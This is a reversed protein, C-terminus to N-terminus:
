GKGGAPKTALRMILPLRVRPMQTDATQFARFRHGFRTLGKTRYDMLSGNFGHPVGKNDWYFFDNLSYWLWRQVLRNGDAPLGTQADTASLLWQFCEVMFQEVRQDGTLVDDAIIDSPYLVGMESIILSKNQQGQSKLWARFDTVMSKFITANANDSYSYDQAKISPPPDQAFVPIGAGANKDSGQGERLIQM